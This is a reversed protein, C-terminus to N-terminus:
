IELKNQSERSKSTELESFTFNNEYWVGHEKLPTCKLIFDNKNPHMDEDIIGRYVEKGDLAIQMRLSSGLSRFFQTACKMRLAFQAGPVSVVYKSTESPKENNEDFDDDNYEVLAEENVEITVELGPKDELIAM